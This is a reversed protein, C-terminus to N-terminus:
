FFISFLYISELFDMFKNVMFEMKKAIQLYSKQM